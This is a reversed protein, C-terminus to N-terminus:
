HRASAGRPKRTGDPPPSSTPIWSTWRPHSSATNWSGSATAFHPSTRSGRRRRSTPGSSRAPTTPRSRRRQRPTAPFTPPPPAPARATRPRTSKLAALAASTSMPERRASGEGLDEEDDDEDNVDDDDLLDEDDDEADLDARALIGRLEDDDFDALPGREITEFAPEPDEDEM